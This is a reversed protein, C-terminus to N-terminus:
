FNAEAGFAVRGTVLSPRHVQGFPELVFTPRTLGVLGDVSARLGLYPLLAWRATAGAGFGGWLLTERTVRTVGVGRGSMPGLEGLACLDLGLPRREREYCARAGVTWLQFHGGPTPALPRPALSAQQDTWASGSIEFRANPLSVGVGAVLGPAVAPLAGANAAFALHASARLEPPARRALTPRENLPVDARESALPAAALPAADHASAAEPDYAFAIVLAVADALSRCSAAELQKEGDLGFASTRLRVRFAGEAGIVEAEVRLGPQSTISVSRGLLREIEALVDREVPCSAPARWQLSLGEGDGARAPGSLVVLALANAFPALRRRGNSRRSAFAGTHTL